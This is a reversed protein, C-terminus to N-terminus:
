RRVMDAETIQEAMLTVSGALMIRKGQLSSRM